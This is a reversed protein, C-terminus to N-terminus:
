KLKQSITKELKKIPTTPIPWKTKIVAALCYDGLFIGNIVIKHGAIVLNYAENLANKM